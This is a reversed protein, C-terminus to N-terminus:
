VHELSLSIKLLLSNRSSILDAREFPYVLQSKFAPSRDRAITGALLFKIRGERPEAVRIGSPQLELLGGVFNACEHEERVNTIYRKRESSLEPLKCIGCQM